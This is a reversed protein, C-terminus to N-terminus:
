TSGPRMMLSPRGSSASSTFVVTVGSKAPRLVSIPGQRLAFLVRGVRTAATVSGVPGAQSVLPACLPGQGPHGRHAQCRAARHTNLKRDSLASPYRQENRSIQCIGRVRSNAPASASQHSRDKHVPRTSASAESSDPVQQRSWGRPQRLRLIDSQAPSRQAGISARPWDGTRSARQRASVVPWPSVSPKSIWTV